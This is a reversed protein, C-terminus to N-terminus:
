QQAEKVIDSTMNSLNYENSNDSSKQDGSGSSSIKIIETDSKHAKNGKNSSKLINDM